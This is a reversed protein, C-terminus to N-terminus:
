NQSKIKLIYGVGSVNQILEKVLKQRLKKIVTRLATKSVVKGYQEWIADEIQTYKTISNQNKLLLELVLREEKTLKLEQSEKLIVGRDKDYSIDENLKIISKQSPKIYLLAKQLADKLGNHTIPKILYGQINLNACQLLFDTTKYATTVIIPIEINDKRVESIFDIGNIKPMKIDTIILEIGGKKYIELAQAGNSAVILKDSYLSLVESMQKQVKPDDEIYLITIDKLRKLIELM